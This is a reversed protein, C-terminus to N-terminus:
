EGVAAALRDDGADQVTRGARARVQDAGPVPHHVPAVPEAVRDEDVVVDDGGDAREGRQRRQLVRGVQGTDLRDASGPSGCTATNSVANWWVMGALAKRYATGSSHYVRYPTRRYPNWPVLWRKTLSRAATRSLRGGPSNRRTVAWRPLRQLAAAIRSPTDTSVVIPRVGSSPSTMPVREPSM